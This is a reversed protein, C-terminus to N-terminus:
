YSFNAHPPKNLSVSFFDDNGRFRSDLINIKRPKITPLFSKELDILADKASIAIGHRPTRGSLV